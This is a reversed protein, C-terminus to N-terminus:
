EPPQSTWSWPALLSSPLHSDGEENGVIKESSKWHSFLWSIERPDRKYPFRGSYDLWRRFTGGGVVMVSPITNWCIFKPPVWLRWRYKWMHWKMLFVYCGTFSLITATQMYSVSPEPLSFVHVLHASHVPTYLAWVKIDGRTQGTGGGAPEPIQLM